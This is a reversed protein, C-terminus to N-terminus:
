NHLSSIEIKWRFIFCFIYYSILDYRTQQNAGPKLTKVAVMSTMGGVLGGLEGRYVKGFSAEGM